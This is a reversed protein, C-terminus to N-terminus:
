LVLGRWPRHHHVVDVIDENGGQQCAGDDVLLELYTQSALPVLQDPALTAHEMTTIPFRLVTLCPNDSLKLHPKEKAILRGKQRLM